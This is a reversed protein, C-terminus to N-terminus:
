YSFQAVRLLLLEFCDFYTLSSPFKDFLTGQLNWLHIPWVILIKWVRNLSCMSEILFQSCLEFHVCRASFPRGTPVVPLILCINCIVFFPGKTFIMFINHKYLIVLLYYVCRKRKLVCIM